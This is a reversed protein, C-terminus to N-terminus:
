RDDSWGATTRAREEWQRVGPGSPDRRRCFDELWACTALMSRRREPWPPVPRDYARFLHDLADLHDPHHMRVIWECWALDEVPDGLHAFEWDLVATIEFTVPDLLLNNPGFDGHVLVAGSTAPGNALVGPDLEQLRRLVRGCTALVQPGHGADLLDQAPVGPLHGLTLEDGQAALVPPVPLVGQLHALLQRERALRAERGPGHYRKVVVSGDGTTHNTYGHRMPHM